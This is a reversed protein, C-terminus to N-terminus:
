KAKVGCKEALKMLDQGKIAGELLPPLMNPTCGFCPVGLETCKKALREDHSPVGSDSLALLTVVKVGSAVLDELRRLLERENGGEFLDTILILLTKRPDRVFGQCYGVARNIDTGGGLQIGFLMDVPDHCQETLDVVETDFAVVHTELAPMSAFIAGMVSGYVVSDAMSGSQDIAVMVNWEKRRHQRAFFHFSDPIVVKRKRDYNKLNRRITRVWDMNPLSRMPSHRSRDLAGRVAQEVAGRLRKMIEEVVQRVIERATEKTKEPIMGRLSMLTGVLEVNPTIQSLTEPEFLLQKLGKREIADRQIVTVVDTNFYSRIDGLWQALRPASAGLGASRKGGKEPAAPASGGYIQGLAGDLNGLDGSLLQGAGCGAMQSLGQDAERGLVLRWRVYREPPTTPKTPTAM